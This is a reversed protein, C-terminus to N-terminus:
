FPNVSGPAFPVLWNYGGPLMGAQPIPQSIRMFSPPPPAQYHAVPVVTQPPISHVVTGGYPTYGQLMYPNWVTGQLGYPGAFGVSSQTLLPYQVFSM